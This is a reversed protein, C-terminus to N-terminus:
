SKPARSFVFLDKFVWKGDQQQGRAIVLQDPSRREYLIRLPEGQKEFITRNKGAEVFTYRDSKDKEEVGIMGPRFHKVMVVPGNDTQEIAFLEYLTAKGDKMMRIFGVINDGSPATWVADIPGGNFTGQWHGEILSMDALTGKSQAQAQGLFGATLLLGALLFQKINM